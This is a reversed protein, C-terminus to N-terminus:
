PYCPIFSSLFFNKRSQLFRTNKWAFVTHMSTAPSLPVFVYPSEPLIQLLHDITLAAGLRQEVMLSANYILNYTATITLKEVIRPSLIGLLTDPSM